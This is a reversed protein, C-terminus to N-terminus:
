CDKMRWSSDLLAHTYMGSYGGEHAVVLRGNCHRDALQIMWKTFQVYAASSLMMQSLPDM